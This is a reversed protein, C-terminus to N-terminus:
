IHLLVALNGFTYQFLHRRGSDNEADEACGRRGRRKLIKNKPKQSTPDRYVWEGVHM